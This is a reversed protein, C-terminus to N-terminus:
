LDKLCPFRALSREPRQNEIIIVTKHILKMKLCSVLSTFRSGNKRVQSLRHSVLNVLTLCNLKKNVIKM